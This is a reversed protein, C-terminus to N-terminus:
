EARLAALDDVLPVLDPPVPEDRATCSCDERHAECLLTDCRRCLVVAPEHRCGVAGCGRRMWMSRDM